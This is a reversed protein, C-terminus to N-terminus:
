ATCFIYVDKGVSGLSSNRDLRSADSEYEDGMGIGGSKAM